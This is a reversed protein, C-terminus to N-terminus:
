LFGPVLTVSLVFAVPSAFVISDLRDMMGGHGPLINGMDKVGLERKIMSEALDGATAASVTAVALVLGFWWPRELLFVAAVTGVLVAGGVSGAFGEWSKKPSIKPAMAHKGFFAGILYGFTDNAVVLLLLTAVLLKGSPERLLLMAFSLLLPIWLVVFIGATISRAADPAPDVSRWLALATTSLVVAYALAEPGGLYAAFPLAITAVIAPVLPLRIQRVELARSVEWVGLLAFATSIAVFAIPLYLIGGLVSGLLAVGVAIAAPLNRGARSPGKPTGRTKRGSRRRLQRTGPAQQARRGRVVADVSAAPQAGTNASHHTDSM